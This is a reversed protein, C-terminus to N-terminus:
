AQNRTEGTGRLRGAVVRQFSTPPTERNRRGPDSHSSRDSRSCTAAAHAPKAAASGATTMVASIHVTADGRCDAAVTGAHEDLERVILRGDILIRKAKEAANERSM